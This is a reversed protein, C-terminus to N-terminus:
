QPVPFDLISGWSDKSHIEFPSIINEQWLAQYNAKSRYYCRYPFLLVSSLPEEKEVLLLIMANTARSSCIGYEPSVFFRQFGTQTFDSLFHVTQTFDIL